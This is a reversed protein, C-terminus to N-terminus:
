GEPQSGSDWTEGCNSCGLDVNRDLEVTCGGIILEGREAAEFAEHTPFGYLIPVGPTGCLPCKLRTKRSTM